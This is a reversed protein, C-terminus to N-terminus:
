NGEKARTPSSLLDYIDTLAAGVHELSHLLHRTTVDAFVTRYIRGDSTEASVAAVIIAKATVGVGMATLPLKLYQRGDETIIEPQVEKSQEETLKMMTM